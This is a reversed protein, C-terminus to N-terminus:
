SMWIASRSLTRCKPSTNARLAIHSLFVPRASAYGTSQQWAWGAGAGFVQDLLGSGRTENLGFRNKDAANSEGPLQHLASVARRQFKPSPPRM